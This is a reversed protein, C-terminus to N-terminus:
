VAVPALTVISTGAAGLAAWVRVQWAVSAAPFLPAPWVKLKVMSVVPGTVAALAALATQPNDM